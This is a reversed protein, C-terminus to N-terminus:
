IFDIGSNSIVFDIAVFEIARTPVIVIRGNLVNNDIDSQTNNTSNIVVKYRDIGQDEQIALLADSVKKEFASRVEPTNAEFVFGISVDSVIRKVELLMRRVNVRDLSTRARQLTKQGSIVYGSKPFTSIPNIRNEYAVDREEKNLRAKASKVFDLSGRNFGAPAFWPFSTNDNFGIASLAAVTAPVLKRKGGDEIVVDPFYAAAYSTDYNRGNFQESTDRVNVSDTSDEYLRESNSNFHPVDLLLLAKGYEEVREIAHSILEDSRIGPFTLINIRSQAPDTLLNVASKYSNVYSNTDGTGFSMNLGVDPSSVGKGGADSSTAKDNMVAMDKDLINTGDFGGYFMNTFKAYESFRNFYISSTMSMLSALTLRHKNKLSDSIAYDDLRYSANRIYAAEKMEDKASGTLLPAYDTLTETGLLFKGLGVNTLSFKNHHFDDAGSGTVLVDLKEIGLFKSYNDLLENYVISENPRTVPKPIEGAAPVREFKIGWYLAKSAGEKISSDGYFDHSTSKAEGTTIKFRFPVPPLISGTMASSTSKSSGDQWVIGAFRPTPDGVLQLDLDTQSPEGGFTKLLPLGRFGFPAAEKPVQEENMADSMVVRIRSSINPYTGSITVRREKEEETDFNYVLKMDGIKAAIYNPSNPNLDCGVYNEIIQLSTDLDRKARLEVNFTPYPDEPNDSKKINSISIKYLNNAFAGDDICEFHFLDYELIGFPQSIFSTTKPSKYRSKFNGFISSFMSRSVSSKSASGSMLAISVDNQPTTAVSAIEDEVPFHAYLLHKDIQFRSPDTNLVKSIYADSSPNLSASFVKAGSVGDVTGLSSDSSTLILKFKGFMESSLNTSVVSGNFDHNSDPNFVNTGNDANLTIFRSGTTTFLIGRVIYPDQSLTRNLSGFVPYGTAENTAIDHDACIFQTLGYEFKGPSPEASSTIAFGSNQVTGLRETETFHSGLTNAGAGLVRVFTLADRNELFKKAALTSPYESKAEGFVEVFREYSHVTVPTFAPGKQSFGVIGAPVTTIIQELNQNRETVIETDFFGPSKFTQEAM